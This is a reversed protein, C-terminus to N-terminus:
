ICDSSSLLSTLNESVKKRYEIETKNHKKCNCSRCAVALNEYLNTGGRSLPVKHELSDKGFLVPKLCLYCTLTGYKKINDEYVLQITHTTLKGGMRVRKKYAQNRLKKSAKSEIKVMKAGGYKSIYRKSIGMRHRYERQYERQYEKEKSKIM